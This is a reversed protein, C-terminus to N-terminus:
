AAACALRLALAVSELAPGGDTAVQQQLFAVSLCVQQSTLCVVRVQSDLCSSSGPDQLVLILGGARRGPLAAASQGDSAIGLTGSV